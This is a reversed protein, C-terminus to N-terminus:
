MREYLTESVFRLSRLGWTEFLGGRAGEAVLAYCALDVGLGGLFDEAVVGGYGVGEEGTFAVLPEDLM